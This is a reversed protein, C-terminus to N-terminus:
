VTLCYGHGKTAPRTQSYWVMFTTMMSFNALRTGRDNSVAYLSHMGIAGPFTHVEQGIKANLDGVVIMMDHWPSDDLM